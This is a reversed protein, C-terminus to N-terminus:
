AYVFLITIILSDDGAAYSIENTKLVAGKDAAKLIDYIDGNEFLATKARNYAQENSFKFETGVRGDAIFSELASTLAAKNYSDFLLGSHIFYNGDRSDCDLDNYIDDTEHTAALEKESRCFFEHSVFSDGTANAYGNSWTPDSM